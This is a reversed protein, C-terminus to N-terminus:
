STAVLEEVETDDVVWEGDDDEVIGMLILEDMIITKDGKRCFAMNMNRM